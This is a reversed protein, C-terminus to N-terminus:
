KRQSLCMPAPSKLAWYNRLAVQRVYQALTASNSESPEGGCHGQFATPKSFGTRGRLPTKADHKADPARGASIGAPM